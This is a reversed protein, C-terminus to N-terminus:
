SGARAGPGARRAARGRGRTPSCADGDVGVGVGGALELPLREAAVLRDGVADLASSITLVIVASSRSAQAAACASRTAEDARHRLLGGLLLHLGARRLGVVAGLGVGALPAASGGAGDRRGRRRPTSSTTSTAGRRRPRRGRGSAPPRRRGRPRLGPRRRLVVAGAGDEVGDRGRGRQCARSRRAAAPRGTTPATARRRRQVNESSRQPSWSWATSTTRRTARGLGIPRTSSSGAARSPSAVAVMSQYSGSWASPAEDGDAQRGAPGLLRRQAHEVDGGARQEGVLDGVGPGARQRPLGVAGAEDVRAVGLAVLVVAVDAAVHEAVVRGAVLDHEAGVVQGVRRRPRRDLQGAVAAPQEHEIDSPQLRM